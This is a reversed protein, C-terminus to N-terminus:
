PLTATRLKIKFADRTFVLDFEYQMSDVFSTQKGRLIKEEFAASYTKKAGYISNEFFPSLISLIREDLQELEILDLKNQRDLNELEGNKKILVVTSLSELIRERIEFIDRDETGATLSEIYDRINKEFRDIKQTTKGFDVARERNETKIQIASKELPIVAKSIAIFNQLDLIFDMQVPFDTSDQFTYKM